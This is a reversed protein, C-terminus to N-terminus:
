SMLIIIYGYIHYCIVLTLCIGGILKFVKNKIAFIILLYSLSSIIWSAVQIYRLSSDFWNYDVARVINQILASLLFIGIFSILLIDASKSNRTDSKSNLKTGCNRCYKANATNEGNCKYCKM